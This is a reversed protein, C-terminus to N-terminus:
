PPVPVSGFASSFAAFEALVDLELLALAFGITSLMRLTWYAGVAGQFSLLMGLWLWSTFCAMLPALRNLGAAAWSSM